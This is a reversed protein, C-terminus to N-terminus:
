FEKDITVHEKPPSFETGDDFRMNSKTIPANEHAFSLPLGINWRMNAINKKLETQKVLEEESITMDLGFFGKEHRTLYTNLGFISGYILVFTGFTKFFGKSYQGWFKTLDPNNPFPHSAKPPSFRGEM